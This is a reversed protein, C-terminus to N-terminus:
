IIFLKGKYDVEEISLKKQSALTKKDTYLKVVIEEGVPLCSHLTQSLQHLLLPDNM